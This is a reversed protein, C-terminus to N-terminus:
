LVEFESLGSCIVFSIPYINEGDVLSVWKISNYGRWIDWIDLGAKNNINLLNEQAKKTAISQWVGFCFDSHAYDLILNIAKDSISGFLSVILIM